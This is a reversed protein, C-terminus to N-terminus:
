VAVGTRAEVIQALAAPWRHLETDLNHYREVRHMLAQQMLMRRQRSTVLDVLAAEWDDPTEARLGTIRGDVDDGYLLPTAVVAAGGIAYEWAKIPTKCRSFPTDAVACCGVSVQYLVPCEEWPLWGYRIIQRDDEVERYICDPIMPAAVVFRVDPFRRAIRGWAIAMPTIDVEPRRGGCWGITLRGDRAWPPRHAMQARFWRVDMANPLVVVPRDVSARVQEALPESSVIVGDCRSAFHRAMEGQHLIEDRTKDQTFGAAELHDAVAPGYFADDTEYVIARVMPRREAIWRDISAEDTSTMLRVILITSEPDTPIHLDGASEEGYWQANIGAQGLRIFPRIIRWNDGVCTAGQILALIDRVAPTM